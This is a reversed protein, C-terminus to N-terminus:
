IENFAARAKNMEISIIVGNEKVQNESTELKATTSKSLIFLILCGVSCALVFVGGAVISASTFLPYYDVTGYTFQLYAKDDTGIAV